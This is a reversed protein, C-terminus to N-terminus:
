LCPEGDADTGRRVDGDARIRILELLQQDIQEVVRDVGRQGRAAAHADAPRQPSARELEPNFVFPDAQRVLRVQEHREERRLRASRADAEDQAALDGFSVASREREVVARIAASAARKQSYRLLDFVATSRKWYRPQGEGHEWCM